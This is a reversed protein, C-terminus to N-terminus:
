NRKNEKAGPLATPADAGLYKNFSPDLPRILIPDTSGTKTDPASNQWGSGDSKGTQPDCKGTQATCFPQDLTSRQQTDSPELGASHQTDALTRLVTLDLRWTRPRHQAPPAQEVIVGIRRLAGLREQVTRPSLEVERGITAISPWANAGDPT